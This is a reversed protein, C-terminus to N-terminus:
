NSADDNERDSKNELLKKSALDDGNILDKSITLSGGILAMLPAEIASYSKVLDKGTLMMAVFTLFVVAYGSLVLIIVNIRLPLVKRM